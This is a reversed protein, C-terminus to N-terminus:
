QSLLSGSRLIGSLSSRIHFVNKKCFSETLLFVRDVTNAIDDPRRKLATFHWCASGDMGDARKARSVTDYIVADTYNTNEKLWKRFLETDIM